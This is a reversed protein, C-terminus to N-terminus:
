SKHYQVSEYQAVPHSMSSKLQLDQILKGPRLIGELLVVALSLSWSNCSLSPAMYLHVQVIGFIGLLFCHLQVLLGRRLCSIAPAVLLICFTAHLSVRGPDPSTLASALPLSQRDGSEPKQVSAARPGPAIGARDALGAHRHGGCGVAV